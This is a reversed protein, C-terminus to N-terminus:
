LVGKVYPADTACGSTTCALWVGVSSSVMPLITIFVASGLGALTATEFTSISKFPEAFVILEKKKFINSIFRFGLM